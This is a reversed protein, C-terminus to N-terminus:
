QCGALSWYARAPQKMKHWAPMFRASVRGPAFCTPLALILPRYDQRRCHSPSSSSLSVCMIGGDKGFTTVSISLLPLITASALSLLKAHAGTDSDLLSAVISCINAHLARHVAKGPDAAAALTAAMTHLSDGAVMEEVLVDPAQPAIKALAGTAEQQVAMDGTHRLQAAVLEKIAGAAVVTDRGATSYCLRRLASAVEAQLEPSRMHQHQAAMLRDVAGCSLLLEHLKAIKALENLTGCCPLQVAFDEMFRRMAECIPQVGGLDALERAVHIAETDHPGSLRVLRYAADCVTRQVSKDLVYKHMSSIVAPLGGAQIIAGRGRDDRAILSLAGAAARHSEADDVQTLINILTQTGGKDALVAVNDEHELLRHVACAM